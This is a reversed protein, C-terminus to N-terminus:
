IKGWYLEGTNVAFDTREMVEEGVDRLEVFDASGTNVVSAQSPALILDTANYM